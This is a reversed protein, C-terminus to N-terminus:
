APFSAEEMRRTFAMAKSVVGEARPEPVVRLNELLPQLEASLYRQEFSGFSIPWFSGGFCIGVKVLCIPWDAELIYKAM